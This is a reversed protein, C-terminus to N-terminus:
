KELFLDYISQKEFIMDTRIKLFENKSQNELFNHKEQKKMQYKM